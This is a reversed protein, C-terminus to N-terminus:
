FKQAVLPRQKTAILVPMKIPTLRCLVFSFAKLLKSGCISPQWTRSCNYEDLLIPTIKRSQVANCTCM